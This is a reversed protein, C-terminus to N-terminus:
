PKPSLTQYPRVLDEVLHEPIHAFQPPCPLALLGQSGGSGGSGGAVGEGGGAGAEGGERGEAGGGGGGSGGVGGVGGGGVLRALDAGGSTDRGGTALPKCEDV